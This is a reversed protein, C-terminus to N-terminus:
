VTNKYTRIIRQYSNIIPKNNSDMTHFLDQCKYDNCPIRQLWKLSFYIILLWHIVKSKMSLRSICYALITMVQWIKCITTHMLTTPLFTYTLTPPSQHEGSMFNLTHKHLWYKHITIFDMKNLTKLTSQYNLIISFDASQLRRITIHHWGIILSM